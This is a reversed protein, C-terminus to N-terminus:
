HTIGLYILAWQYYILIFQTGIQMMSLSIVLQQVELIVLSKFFREMQIVEFIGVLHKRIMKHEYKGEENSHVIFIKELVPESTALIGKKDIACVGTVESLRM